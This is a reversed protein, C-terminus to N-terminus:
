SLGATGAWLLRLGILGFAAAMARRVATGRRAFVARARGTSFLWGQAGYIALASLAVGVGVLAFGAGRMGISALYLTVGVWLMAAKPNTMVVGIGLLFGGRGAAARAAPGGSASSPPPALLTRAALVLLWTGGALELATLTAPARAILAGLGLAFLV